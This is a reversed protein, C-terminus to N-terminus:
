AGVVDLVSLIAPGLVVVFLAPFIFFVLPFLIKIPIKQIKEKIKMKYRERLTEAQVRFTVAISSGLKEAQIIATVMAHTEEVRSRRAFTRLADELPLGAAIEHVMQKLERGLPTGELENAVRLLAANIGLGAELCVVILDLAGPLAREMQEIYRRLLVLRTMRVALIPAAVLLILKNAWPFPLVVILVALLGIGTVLLAAGFPNLRTQAQARKDKTSFSIKKIRKEAEKLDRV